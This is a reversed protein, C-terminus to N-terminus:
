ERGMPRIESVGDAIKAFIPGCDRGGSEGNEMMVVVVYKPKRYPFFGAFWAQVVDRDGDKIGTQATSTKAAADIKSPKGAFSTGEELSAKMQSKLIETTRSSFVRKPDEGEFRETFNFFENVFGEVLRPKVYNGQSAITNILALAHLPTVMLGGQGFSFNALQARSGLQDIDPLIGKSSIMEPALEYAKDLDLKRSFELIREPDFKEALKVFYGNCSHQMAGKMDVLGHGIGGFCNFHVSDIEVSGNCNLKFYESVGSELAAGATVLKFISGLDYKSFARNILPSNPDKVADELKDPSFDPLSVWSRIKLNPVEAVLAAGKVIHEEAAEQTIKQIDKDITLVLGRNKFYSTDEIEKKEGGLTEGRADISYGASIGGMSDTLPDNYSKEIGFLGELGSGDVYGIVHPCIQKESYRKPVTFIDLGPISDIWDPIRVIFPEKKSLFPLIEDMRDKSLVKGLERNAKASPVVAVVKNEETNVLPIKNCDYINARLNSIKLRNSHQITAASQLWDLQSLFYLNSVAFCIGSMLIFFFITARKKM